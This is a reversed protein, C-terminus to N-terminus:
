REVELTEQSRPNKLTFIILDVASILALALGLGLIVMPLSKVAIGVIALMCAITWCMMFRQAFRRTKVNKKMGM